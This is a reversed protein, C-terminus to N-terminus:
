NPEFVALVLSDAEDPSCGLIDRLTQEKSDPKPKNKPPLYVKGEGDYLLPLPALQRRLEDYKAPLAFATPYLAPIETTGVVVGADNHVLKTTPLLNLPNLRARTVGYMEARRNKYITRVENKDRRQDKGPKKQEHPDTAKAGFSVTRVNYGIKRLRDAHQKGGGGSDFLVNESQLKYRDILELTQDVVKTTDFTKLSIADIIGMEDIVTWVSSDGGEAADVGLTKPIRRLQQKILEVAYEEAADLWDPPYLLVEAGEYFDADLSIQQKIKDWHKRRQKYTEYSILGPIVPEALPPLGAEERRKGIIVNPCDEARIRIIKRYYPM